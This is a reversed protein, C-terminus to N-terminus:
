TCNKLMNIKFSEHVLQRIKAGFPPVHRKPVSDRNSVTRRANGASGKRLGTRVRITVPM